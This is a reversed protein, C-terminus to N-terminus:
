ILYTCRSLLRHWQRNRPVRPSATLLVCFYDAYDYAVEAIYIYCRQPFTMLIPTIYLAREALAQLVQPVCNVVFSGVFLTFLAWSVLINSYMSSVLGSVDDM